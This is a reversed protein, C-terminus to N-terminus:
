PSCLCAQLVEEENCTANYRLEPVMVVTRADIKDVGSAIERVDGVPGEAKAEPLLYRLISAGM